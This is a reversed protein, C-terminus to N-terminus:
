HMTSIIPTWDLDLLNLEVYEWDRDPIGRRYVKIKLTDADVDGYPTVNLQPYRYIKDARWLLQEKPRFFYPFLPTEDIGCPLMIYDGNDSIWLGIFMDCLGSRPPFSMLKRGHQGLVTIRNQPPSKGKLKPCSSREVCQTMVVAVSGDRAVSVSFVKGEGRVTKKWLQKGAPAYFTLAYGEQPPKNSIRKEGAPNGPVEEALTESFNEAVMFYDNAASGYTKRNRWSRAIWNWVEGDRSVPASLKVFERSGAAKFCARGAGDGDGDTFTYCDEASPVAACVNVGPFALLLPLISRALYM